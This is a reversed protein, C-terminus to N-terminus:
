RSPDLNNTKYFSQIASVNKQLRQLYFEMNQIITSNETTQKNTLAQLLQSRTPVM